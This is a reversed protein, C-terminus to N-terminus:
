PSKETLFRAISPWYNAANDTSNHGAGELGIDETNFVRGISVLVHDARVHHGGSLEVSVCDRESKTREVKTGTHVRIGKKKLERELIAAVEHDETPLIQPLMEVLTVQTGLDAYLNAFECGLAGAGIIGVRM